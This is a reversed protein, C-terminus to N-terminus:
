KENRMEKIKNMVGSSDIVATKIKTDLTAVKKSNKALIDETSKVVAKNETEKSKIDTHEYKCPKHSHERTPEELCESCPSENEKLDKYKCTSCYKDFEVIKDIYEM